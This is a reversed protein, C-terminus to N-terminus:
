VRNGTQKGVKANERGNKKEALSQSKEAKVGGISLMEIKGVALEEGIM